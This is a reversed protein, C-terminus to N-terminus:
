PRNIQILIPLNVTLSLRIKENTIFATSYSSSRSSTDLFIFFSLKFTCLLSCLMDHWLHCTEKLFIMFSSKTVRTQLRSITTPFMEGGGRIRPTQPTPPPWHLHHCLFELFMGTTIVKGSEACYRCRGWWLQVTLCVYM